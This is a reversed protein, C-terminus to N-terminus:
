AVLEERVRALDEVIALAEVLEEETYDGVFTVSGDDNLIMEAECCM